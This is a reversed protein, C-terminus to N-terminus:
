SLNKIYKNISEAARKGAGMAEIVTAAGTVIDGGAFVGPISTQCDKVVIRGYKDVQLNSTTSKLIPNPNQGIAIICQDLA